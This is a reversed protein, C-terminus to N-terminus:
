DDETPNRLDYNRPRSLPAPKMGTVKPRPVRERDLPWMEGTSNLVHLQHEDTVQAEEQLPTGEDTLSLVRFAEVPLAKGKLTLNPIRQIHFHDPTADYTTRGILIEGPGAAGCLRSATNVPDGMVTYSLSKSSGIYGAVVRGTNIGIGIRISEFSDDHPSTGSEQAIEFEMRRLENFQELADRMALACKVAKREAEKVPLPAGWLAMIEDGVFKDLTGGHAFIVDVMIEFYNNLLRVLGKADIRESLATFGRIDAFLMTASREEGGQKIEARGSVVEDVLQPSLLRQLNQRVVIEQEMQALLKSHQINIAAQRAFGTLIQLDKEVFAGLANQSDLHIIGLLQDKYLLPVSVTSRIGELIISHANSFRDDSMADHSLVAAKEETVEALITQSIRIHEGTKGKRNKYVKPVLTEEEDVMLIVGRDAPFIQFAKTLIKDLLQEEDLELGLSEQLAMAIRLKEYDRRLTEVNEIMSAPQFGQEHAGSVRSRIATDQNSDHFTVRGRLSDEPRDEIFKLRTSGISIEDGNSLSRRASIRVGNVYTGNRSGVDQVYFLGDRMEISCHSKSVVRDLIQIDQDPHRGVTMMHRLPVNRSVGAADKYTLRAM